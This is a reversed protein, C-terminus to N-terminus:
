EELFRLVAEKFRRDRVASGHTQGPLVVRKSGRIAGAAVMTGPCFPDRSGVALLVPVDIDGLRELPMPQQGHFTGAAVRRMTVPHYYRLWWALGLVAKAPELVPGAGDIEECASDGPWVAGMGGLVARSFRKPYELLAQVAIVAGMSYGFITAREVGAANLVGVVDRALTARAYDDPKGPRSSRGHGRVDMAVVRYGAGALADIWGSARWQARLNSRYGHVLLLAPGSGEEEWWTRVGGRRVWPM